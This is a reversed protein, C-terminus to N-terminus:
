EDLKTEDNEEKKKKKKKKKVAVHEKGGVDRQGATSVQPLGEKCEVCNIM